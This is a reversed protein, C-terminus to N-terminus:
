DTVLLSVREIAWNLQEERSLDSTDLIIADAAKKLPSEQRTSDQHDRDILNQKVAAKDILEGKAKLEELRRQTRVEISATVFIKLEAHPFVVTGIDRGDMVIGGGISMQRQLLVLQERVAKITAVKSVISAVRPSRIVKTVDKDNLWVKQDTGLQISLSNLVQLLKAEDIADNELILGNELSYYAVARYMAGSDVFTYGLHKALSKALTSKGCAAYGDIAITIKKQM